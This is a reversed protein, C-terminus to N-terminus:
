RISHALDLIKYDSVSKRQNALILHKCKSINSELGLCYLVTEKLGIFLVRLRLLLYNFRHLAYLCKCSLVFRIAYKLFMVYTSIIVSFSMVNTIFGRELTFLRCQIVVRSLVTLLSKSPKKVQSNTFIYSHEQLNLAFFIFM